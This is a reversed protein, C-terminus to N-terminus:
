TIYFFVGSVDHRLLNIYLDLLAQSISMTSNFNSKRKIGKHEDKDNLVTQM